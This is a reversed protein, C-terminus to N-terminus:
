ARAGAALAAAIEQEMPPLLSEIRAIEDTSPQRRPAAWVADPFHSDWEFRAIIHWHLHPAVNGLSALNVKRPQLHRRLLAEVQAVAHMCSDREDPALDTFEAAHENWVLRYFAPLGPEAARILRLRGADVVLAGGPGACLPCGPEKM